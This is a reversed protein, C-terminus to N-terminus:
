KCNEDTDGHLMAEHDRQENILSRVIIPAGALAFIACVTLWQATPLILRSILLCAGDGIVVTLWTYRAALFRGAHSTQLFWAYLAGWILGLILGFASLDIM